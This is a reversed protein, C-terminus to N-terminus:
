WAASLKDELSSSSYEVGAIPVDLPKPNETESMGNKTALKSITQQMKELAQISLSSLEQTQRDCALSSAKAVADDHELGKEKWQLVEMQDPALAGAESLRSMIAKILFAKKEDDQAKKTKELTATLMKIAVDKERITAEKSTLQAKLSAVKRAWGEEGGSALDGSNLSSYYKKTESGTTGSAKANPPPTERAIMNKTDTMDTQVPSVSERSIIPTEGAIKATRRTAEVIRPQVKWFQGLRAISGGEVTASIVGSAKDEKMAVVKGHILTAFKSVMQSPQIPEKGVEMKHDVKGKTIDYEGVGQETKGLNKTNDSPQAKEKGEEMKHDVKGKTIDYEGVGHEVKGAATKEVSLISKKTESPLLNEASQRIVLNGKRAVFMCSALTSGPIYQISWKNQVETDETQNIKSEPEITSKETAEISFQSKYYAIADKEEGDFATTFQGLANKDKFLQVVQNGAVKGSASVMYGNGLDFSATTKDLETLTNNVLQHLASDVPINPQNLRKSLEQKVASAVEEDSVVQEIKKDTHLKKLMDRVKNTLAKEVETKVVKTTVDEVVKDLTADEKPKEVKPASEVQTGEEKRCKDCLEGFQNPMECEPCKKVEDSSNQSKLPRLELGKDLEKECSQCYESQAQDVVNKCILCRSEPLTTRQIKTPVKETTDSYSDALKLLKDSLTKEEKSAVRELMKADKDAGVSVWSLEYFNVGHNIAYVKRGNYEKGMSHRLHDCYEGESSAMKNCINCECQQVLAGMSVDTAIGKAIKDAIPHMKDVAMLCEVYHTGDTEWYKADLIIGVAKTVDDSEHNLYNGRRVFTKYNDKLEQEPFYDGNGNAGYYEGASVARARVYIFNETDVEFAPSAEVEKPDQRVSSAIVQRRWNDVTVKEAVVLSGFKFIAM